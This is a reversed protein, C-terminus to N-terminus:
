LGTAGRPIGLVCRHKLVIRVSRVQEAIPTAEGTTVLRDGNFPQAMLTSERLYLLHGSAYVGNSNAQGVTKVERSDLAGIRLMIEYGGPQKHDAFLFHRGDPLFWPFSHSFDNTADMTTAPASPGGTTTAVRQLPGRVNPAFVIVGEPSWSGGRPSPADALALAPGGAVDIRKLKGDAFFGVSRSDPSWFPFRANVTGALPQVAPSDLSRVWLQTQGDDGRAGVVMRRGDPSLAPPNSGIDFDFTTNEPPEISTTMM